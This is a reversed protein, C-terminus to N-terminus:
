GCSSSANAAGRLATDRDRRSTMSGHKGTRVTALRSTPTLIWATSTQDQNDVSQELTMVRERARDLDGADV